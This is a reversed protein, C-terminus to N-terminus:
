YWVHYWFRVLLGKMGQSNISKRKEPILSISYLHSKVDICWGTCWAEM